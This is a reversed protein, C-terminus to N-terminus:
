FSEIDYQEIYKAISELNKEKINVIESSGDIHADYMQNSLEDLSIKDELLVALSPSLKKNQVAARVMPLYDRKVGIESHLLTLFIAISAKPGVEDPSLWGYKKLVDDVTLLNMRDVLRISDVAAEFEKSEVGNTDKVEKLFKRVGQDMDFVHELKKSLIAYIDKLVKNEKVKYNLFVWQEDEKLSGFDDENNIKDFDSYLTNNAIFFLNKFASDLIGASAWSKAANYRDEPTAKSDSSNLAISFSKASELYEKNKYLSDAMAINQEYSGQAYAFMTYILFLLLLVIDKIKTFIDLIFASM